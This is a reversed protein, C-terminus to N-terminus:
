KDGDTKALSAMSVGWGKAVSAVRMCSCINHACSGCEESHTCPFGIGREGSELIWLVVNEIM